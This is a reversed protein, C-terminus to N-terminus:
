ALFRKLVIVLASVAVAIFIAWLVEAVTVEEFLGRRNM